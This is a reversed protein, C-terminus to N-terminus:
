DNDEIGEGYADAESRYGPEPVRNAASALSPFERHFAAMRAERRHATEIERKTLACFDCYGRAFDEDTKLAMRHNCTPCWVTLGLSRRLAWSQPITADPM